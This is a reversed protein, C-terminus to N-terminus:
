CFTHAGLCGSSANHRSAPPLLGFSSREGVPYPREGITSGWSPPLTPRQWAKKNARCTVDAINAAGVRRGCPRRRTLWHIRHHAAAAARSPEGDGHRGAKKGMLARAVPSIWSVMCRAPDSEDVGVIRYTRKGRGHEEVTVTAGFVVRRPPETGPAVVEMIATMRSLYQIRREVERLRPQATVLLSDLEARTRAAGEPTVYNKAGPPLPIRLEPADGERSESASEDVFARSM